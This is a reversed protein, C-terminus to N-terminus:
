GPYGNPYGNPHGDWPYGSPYGSPYGDWPYGDPGSPGEERSYGDHGQLARGGLLSGDDPGWLPGEEEWWTATSPGRFPAMEEGWYGAM